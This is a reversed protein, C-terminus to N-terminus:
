GGKPASGNSRKWAIDQIQKESLSLGNAQSRTMKTGAMNADTFDCNELTSMRLDAERLDARVFSVNEFVSCRMDCRSLDAETFDVNIFNNWCFSSDVLSTNRFSIDAIGCRCFFVSPMTLNELRWLGYEEGEAPVNIEPEKYFDIGSGIKDFGAPGINAPAPEGEDVFTTTEQLFKWTEELSLRHM